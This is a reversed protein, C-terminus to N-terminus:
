PFSLEMDYCRMRKISDVPLRVGRGWVQWGAVLACDFPGLAPRHSMAALEARRNGM